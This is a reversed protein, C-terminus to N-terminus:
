QRVTRFAPAVADLDKTSRFPNIDLGGRRTYRAYVSLSTCGCCQKLDHFMREVCHEHFDQCQRFSVIYRLLSERSIKPGRYHIFVSGWDPQDTVPCNSRLLNSYLHEEVEADGNDRGEGESGEAQELLLIDADPEYSFAQTEDIDQQDLCHWTLPLDLVDFRAQPLCEVAVAVQAGAAGSLDSVLTQELAEVSEFRHQNLSNLYLKFSKSEIINVSHAPIRFHAIAAQPLGSPALWSLEYCTWWDEGQFDLAASNLKARSQERAIPFLLSPDYHHDYRTKKGLQSDQVTAM